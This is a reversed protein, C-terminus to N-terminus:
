RGSATDCGRPLMSCHRRELDDGVELGGAVLRLGDGCSASPMSRPSRNWVSSPMVPEPLLAVIAQVISCACRGVSTRAGSCTARRGARWRTGRTRGSSGPRTSRRSSRSSGARPTCRRRAVGVDLLVRRDVVLDVPQAVRGGRGQEGPAVHDDDRRHRADVAQTSGSSYRSCSSSAAADPSSSRGARSGAGARRCATRACRCSVEARPLNRTRPSVM